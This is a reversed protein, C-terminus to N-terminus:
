PSSGNPSLLTLVEASSEAALLKTVLDRDAVTRSIAALCQLHAAPNSTPSVICFFLQVPKKDMARFDIPRTTSAVALVVEDLGEYKCHPIAIGAGIGTSGLDEREVLKDFLKNPDRVVNHDALRNALFRLLAEQDSVNLRPFVLGSHTLSDLRM